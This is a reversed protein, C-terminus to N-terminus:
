SLWTGSLFDSLQIEMNAVMNFSGLLHIHQYVGHQLLYRLYLVHQWGKNDGPEFTHITHAHWARHECTTCASAMLVGPQLSVTTTATTTQQETVSPALALMVSTVCFRRQRSMSPSSTPRTHVTNIKVVERPWTRGATTYVSTQARHAQGEKIIWDKNGHEKRKILRHTHPHQDEENQSSGEPFQQHPTSRNSRHQDCLTRSGRQEACNKGTNQKRLPNNRRLSQNSIRNNVEENNRMRGLRQRCLSPHRTSSWSNNDQNYTERITQLTTNGQHVQALAEIEAPRSNNATDTSKCAGRKTALWHRAKHLDDMTAQWGNKPLSRTRRASNKNWDGIISESHQHRTSTSSQLQAHQSRRAARNHLQGRSQDWLLWGQQLHKQWFASPTQRSHTRRDSPTPPTAPHEQVAQQGNRQQGIFLLDDVYCLINHMERHHQTSTPSASLDDYDLNNCWRQWTIKGHKQAAAYAMSPKTSDGFSKISPTTSSQQHICSFIQQQQQQMYFPRNFHRRHSLDLQQLTGLRTADESRLLNTNVRLHRRQWQDGRHLGKSCKTSSSHQRETSSGM